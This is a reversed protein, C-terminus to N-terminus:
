EEDEEWPLVDEARLDQITKDMQRIVQAAEHMLNLKCFPKENRRPCVTCESRECCTLEEAIIEHAGHWEGGYRVDKAIDQLNRIHDGTKHEDQGYEGLARRISEMLAIAFVMSDYRSIKNM